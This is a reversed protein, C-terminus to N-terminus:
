KKVPACDRRAYKGIILWARGSKDLYRCAAGVSKSLRDLSGSLEHSKKNLARTAAVGRLGSLRARPAVLHCSVLSVAASTVLMLLGFAGFPAVILFITM